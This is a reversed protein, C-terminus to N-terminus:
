QQWVEGNWKLEASDGGNINAIRVTVHYRAPDYGTDEPAFTPVLEFLEQHLIDGSQHDIVTLIYIETMQMM